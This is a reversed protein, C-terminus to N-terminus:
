YRKRLLDKTSFIQNNCVINDNKQIIIKKEIKKIVKKSLLRDRQKKSIFILFDANNIIFSFNKEIEDKSLKKNDFSTMEVYWILQNNNKKVISAALNLYYSQSNSYIYKIKNEAGMENLVKQQLNFNEVAKLDKMNLYKRRAVIKNSYFFDFLLNKQFYRNQNLQIVNWMLSDGVIKDFNYMRKLSFLADNSMYPSFHDVLAIGKKESFINSPIFFNNLNKIKNYIFEKNKKNQQQYFREMHFLQGNIRYQIFKKHEVTYEANKIKTILYNIVEIKKDIFFQFQNKQPRSMSDESVVRIHYDALNDYKLFIKGTLNKFNEAWYIIDNSHFFDINYKEFSQLISNRYFKGWTTTFIVRADLYDDTYQNGNKELYKNIRTNFDLKNKYYDVVPVAVFNVNKKFYIISNRILNPSFLDDDDLFGVYQGSAREIGLNLANSLQGFNTTIIIINHYNSYTKKVMEKIENCQVGNAVVIIEIKKIPYNQKLISNIAKKLTKKTATPIIISIKPFVFYYKFKLIIKQFIIM